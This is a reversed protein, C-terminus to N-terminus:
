VLVGVIGLANLFLGGYLLALILTFVKLFVNIFTDTRWSLGLFLNFGATILYIIALTTSTM